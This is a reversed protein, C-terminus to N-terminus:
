SPMTGRKQNYMCASMTIKTNAPMTIATIM